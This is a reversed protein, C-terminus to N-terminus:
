SFLETGLSATLTILKSTFVLILCYEVTTCQFINIILFAATGKYFM